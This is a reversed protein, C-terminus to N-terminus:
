QRVAAFRTTGVSLRARQQALEDELKGTRLLSEGLHSSLMSVSSVTSVTVGQLLLRQLAEFGVVDSQRLPQPWSSTFATSMGAELSTM